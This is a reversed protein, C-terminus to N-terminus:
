PVFLSGRSPRRGDPLRWAQVGDAVTAFISGDAVIYQELPVDLTALLEGTSADQANLVLREEDWAYVVDGAVLPACNVDEEFLPTDCQHRIGFNFAGTEIDISGGTSFASSRTVAPRSVDGESIWLTQGSQADMACLGENELRYGGTTERVRCAIRGQSEGSVANFALWALKGFLRGRDASFGAGNGGSIFVTGRDVALSPIKSSTDLFTNPVRRNWGTSGTEVDVKALRLVDPTDKRTYFGYVQGKVFAMSFLLLRPRSWLVRGSAPDLGLLGGTCSSVVLVQSSVGKDRVCGIAEDWAISGTDADLAWLRDQGHVYLVAHALIPQALRLSFSRIDDPLKTEWALRVVEVTDSTLTTENPNYRTKGADFDNQRWGTAWAPPALLGVVVLTTLLTISRRM